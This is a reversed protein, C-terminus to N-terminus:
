ENEFRGNRGHQALTLSSVWDDESKREPHGFWRIRGGWM